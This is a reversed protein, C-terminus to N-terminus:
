LKHRSEQPARNQWHLRDQTLTGHRMACTLCYKEDGHQIYIEGSLILHFFDEHPNKSYCYQKEWGQKVHAQWGEPYPLYLRFDESLEQHPDLPKM